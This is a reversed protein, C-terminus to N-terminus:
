HDVSANEDGMGPFPIISCKRKEIISIFKHMVVNCQRDDLAQMCAWGRAFYENAATFPDINMQRRFSDTAKLLELFGTESCDEHKMVYTITGPAPLASM